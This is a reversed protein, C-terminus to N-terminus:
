SSAYLVWVDQNIQRLLEPSEMARDGNLVFDEEEATEGDMEITLRSNAAAYGGKMRCALDEVCVSDGKSGCGDWKDGRKAELMDLSELVM